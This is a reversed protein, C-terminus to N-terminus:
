SWRLGAPMLDRLSPVRPYLSIHDDSELHWAASRGQEGVRGERPCSECPRWLAGARLCTRNGASRPSGAEQCGSRYGQRASGKKGTVNLTLGEGVGM